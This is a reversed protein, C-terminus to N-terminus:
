FNINESDILEKTYETKPNELVEEPSGEEIVSGDKMVYLYDSLFKAVGLDHTILVISLNNEKNLKFIYQIIDDRTKNDVASLPEDMLLIDPECILARILSFRQVEGGSLNRVKQYLMEEELSFDKLLNYLRAKFDPRLKKYLIYEPEELIELLNMSPSFYAWPDQFIPQIKNRSIKKFNKGLITIKGSLKHESRHINLITKFLSTKGSGSGGIISAIKKNPIQISIDKLIIKNKISLNLNQIDICYKM